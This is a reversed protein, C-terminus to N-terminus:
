NGTGEVASNTPLSYIESRINGQEVVASRNESLIMLKLKETRFSGIMLAPVRNIGQVKGQERSFAGPFPPPRFRNSFPLRFSKM